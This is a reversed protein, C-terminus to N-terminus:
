LISTLNQIEDRRKGADGVLALLAAEKADSLRNRTYSSFTWDLPRGNSDWTTALSYMETRWLESLLFASEEGYKERRFSCSFPLGFHKAFVAVVTHPKIDCRNGWVVSASRELSWQGGLIAERFMQSMDIAVPATRTKASELEDWDVEIDPGKEDDSSSADSVDLTPDKVPVRRFTQKMDIDADIIDKEWQPRSTSSASKSVIKRSKGEQTRTHTTGSAIDKLWKELPFMCSSSRIMHASVFSSTPLIYMCSVDAELLEDSTTYSMHDYTFWAEDVDQAHQKWTGLCLEPEVDLVPETEHLPLLYLQLPKLTAFLVRYSSWEADAPAHVLIASRTKDRARCLARIWLPLDDHHAPTLASAEVLTEYKKQSIPKPCACSQKRLTGIQSPTYPKSNWLALLANFDRGTWTASGLTMPPPNPKVPEQLARELNGHEHEIDAAIERYMVERRAAAMEEYRLRAEPSLEAFMRAHEKMATRLASKDVVGFRGPASKYRQISEALFMQRAGVSSVQKKRLQGLRSKIRKVQSTDKSEASLLQGIRQTFDAQPRVHGVRMAMVVVTLKRHQM